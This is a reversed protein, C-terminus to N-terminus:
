SHFIQHGHHNQSWWDFNYGQWLKFRGYFWCFQSSFLLWCMNFNGTIKRSLDAAFMYAGKLIAIVVVEEGQKLLQSYDASIQQGLEAIRTQIQAETIVTKECFDPLPHM